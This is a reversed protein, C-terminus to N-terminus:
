EDIFGKGKMLHIIFQAINDSASGENIVYKDCFAKLQDYDYANKTISNMIIEPNKSIVGPLENDYDIALGRANDYLDMDFNYFYLPINLVAAEYVICSYDSILADAIFLTDFSSFEPLSLVKDNQIEIKSLPHLKLILVQQKTLLDTLKRVADQMEEENKRFTPCYLIIQKEKLDPYIEYIENCKKTKYESDRLLDVRPLPFTKIIDESCNFGKALHEKYATSSSFVYSYQEHMKMLKAVKEKSGEITNLASYGFKKMTGMSHWIQIVKLDKKHRLLSIVICYSDLVVVKSTAIEKMQVFMHFIYKIKNLLSSNLGGDLTHCLVKVQISSDQKKLAKELLVFDISPENSQRSIFVVKNQTPLLKIFFYILNLLFTGIKVIYQM